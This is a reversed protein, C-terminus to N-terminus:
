KGLLFLRADGICARSDFGLLGFFFVVRRAAFSILAAVARLVADSHVEGM